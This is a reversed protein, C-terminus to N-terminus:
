AKRFMPTTMPMRGVVPRGSGKKLAPPVEMEMVIAATPMRMFMELVVSNISVHPTHSPPPRESFPGERASGGPFCSPIPKTRGGPKHAWALQPQNGIPKTTTVAASLAAAVQWRQFRYLNMLPPLLPAIPFSASPRRGGGRRRLPSIGEKGGETSSPSGDAFRITSSVGWGM